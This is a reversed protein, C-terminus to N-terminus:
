NFNTTHTGYLTEIENKCTGFHLEVHSVLPDQCIHAHCTAFNSSLSLSLSCVGRTWEVNFSSGRYTQSPYGIWRLHSPSSWYSTMLTSEFIHVVLLTFIYIPNCTLKSNKHEIFSLHMKHSLEKEEIIRSLVFLIFNWSVLWLSPHFCLM